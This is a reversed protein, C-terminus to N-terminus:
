PTPGVEPLTVGAETAAAFAEGWVVALRRAALLARLQAVRGANKLYQESLTITELDTSGARQARLVVDIVEPTYVFQLGADRSEKLWVGPDLGNPQDMVADALAVLETDTQIEAMRRRVDGHVYRQGLLQDWLAHMNRSQRTRISNAGRDGEPFVVEAYLSGAHCPQHSDGVLHALWCIALARDSASADASGLV